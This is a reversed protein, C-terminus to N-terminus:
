GNRECTDLLNDLSIDIINLRFSELLISPLAAQNANGFVVFIQSIRDLYVISFFCMYESSYLNIILFFM